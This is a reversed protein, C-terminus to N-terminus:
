DVLPEGNRGFRAIPAAQRLSEIAATHMDQWAKEALQDHMEERSAIPAPRAAELSLLHWGYQSHFPESVSGVAMAAAVSVIEPVMSNEDFFGLDGGRSSGPYSLSHAVDAFSEGSDIRAKVEIAATENATRIHHAHYQRRGAMAAAYAVYRADLLAADIQGSLQQRFYADSLVQREILRLRRQVSPDERLGAERAAHYTLAGEVLRELTQDYLDEPHQSAREEPRTAYIATMVESLMIEVDWVRAVIVDGSEMGQASGVASHLILALAFLATRM